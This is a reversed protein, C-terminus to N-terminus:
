TSRYISASVPGDYSTQSRCIDRLKRCTTGRGISKNPKKSDGFFDMSRGVPTTDEGRAYLVMNRGHEGFLIELEEPDCHALDGLTEIGLHNLRKQTVKGIGIMREVALPWVITEIQDRGIETVADPKHLDSGLKAFIKNFSIGISVTLGLETKMRNRIREAIERGDGFLATSGTVDLWCEDLGFPELQDTYTAYIQQARRSFLRYKDHQPPVTQLHPCKKRAQWLTEATKIGYAKAEENKALIIGRRDDQSGCVAFPKGRLDPRELLEISAYCNNIDVHLIIRDKM